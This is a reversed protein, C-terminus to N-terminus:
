DHSEATRTRGEIDISSQLKSREKTAKWGEKDLRDIQQQPTKLNRTDQRQIAENQKEEKRNKNM